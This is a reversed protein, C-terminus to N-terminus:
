GVPLNMAKRFAKWRPDGHLSAFLREMRAVV